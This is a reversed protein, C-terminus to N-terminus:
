FLPAVECFQVASVRIKLEIEREIGQRAANRDVEVRKKLIKHRLVM